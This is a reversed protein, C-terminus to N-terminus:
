SEFDVSEPLKIEQFEGNPGEFRISGCQEKPDPKNTPSKLGGHTKVWAVTAAISKGSKAMHAFTELVELNLEIASEILEKPYGTRLTKLSVAISFAIQHEPMGVRAMRSVRARNASDPPPLDSM